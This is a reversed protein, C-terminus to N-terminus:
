RQAPQFMAFPAGQPDALATFVGVGEMAISGMFINAGLDKAKATSAACDDVQIYM